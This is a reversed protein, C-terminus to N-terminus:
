FLTKITANQLIRRGKAILKGLDKKYRELNPIM